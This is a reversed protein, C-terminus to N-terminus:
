PAYYFNKDKIKIKGLEKYFVGQSLTSFELNYLGEPLDILGNLLDENITIVDYFEFKYVNLYLLPNLLKVTKDSQILSTRKFTLFVDELLNPCVEMVDTFIYITNLLDSVTTTKKFYLM